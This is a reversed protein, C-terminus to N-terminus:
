GDAGVGRRHLLDYPLQEGSELFPVAPALEKECWERVGAEFARQTDDLEFM